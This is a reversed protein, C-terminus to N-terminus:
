DFTKSICTDLAYERLGSDDIIDGLIYAYFYAQQEALDCVEDEQWFVEPVLKGSHMWHMYM